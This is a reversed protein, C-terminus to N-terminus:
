HLIQLLEAQLGDRDRHAEVIQEVDGQRRIVGMEVRHDHHSGMLIALGLLDGRLMPGDTHSSIQKGFIPPLEVLARRDIGPHRVELIVSPPKMEIAIDRQRVIEAADKEVVSVQFTGTEIARIAEIHDALTLDLLERFEETAERLMAQATQHIGGVIAIKDSRSASSQDSIQIPIGRQSIEM